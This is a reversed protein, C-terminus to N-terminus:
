STLFHTTKTPEYHIISANTAWAGYLWSEEGKKRYKVGGCKRYNVDNGIGNNSSIGSGFTDPNVLYKTGYLMELYIIYANLTLFGGESFPYSSEPDVNNARSYKAINIQNVDNSRPYTRGNLFMTCANGVGAGSKCNTEGEYLFFFSRAKSDVTCVPGPSLATPPLVPCTQRLDLGDLMPVTDADYM